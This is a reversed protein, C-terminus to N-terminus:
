GQRPGDPAGAGDPGGYLRRYLRLTQADPDADRLAYDDVLAGREDWKKEWLVIGHEYEGDAALRGDEHWERKRGHLV